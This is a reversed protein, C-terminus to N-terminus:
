GGDEDGAPELSEDPMADPVAHLEPGLLGVQVLEDIRPLDDLSGLDLHDLFAPTTAWTVPRGPTERRGRPQVWGAELLLDLTGKSVSVGRMEEIEARTLPQHYAIIALTELAARSLHRSQAQERQLYGALDPATRLAYREGHRELRVGRGAYDQMLEDLLEGAHLGGPLHAQITPLDLPAEAAFLLAEVIRKALERTM